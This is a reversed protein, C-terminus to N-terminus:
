GVLHCPKRIDASWSGAALTMPADGDDVVTLTALTQALQANGAGGGQMKGGAGKGGQLRRRRAGTTLTHAGAPCSVAWDARNGPGMYGGESITRPADSIYIGDKALLM